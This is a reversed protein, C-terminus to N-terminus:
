HGGVEQDAHQSAQKRTAGMERARRVHEQRDMERRATMNPFRDPALVPIADDDDGDRRPGAGKPRRRPRNAKARVM